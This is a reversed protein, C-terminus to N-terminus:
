VLMSNERGKVKKNWGDGERLIGEWWRRRGFICESIEGGVGSGSIGLEESEKFQLSRERQVRWM